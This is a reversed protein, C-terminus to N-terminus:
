YWGQLEMTLKEPPFALLKPRSLASIRESTLNYRVSEGQLLKYEEGSLTYAYNFQDALVFYKPSLLLGSDSRNNTVRVEFQYQKFLQDETPIETIGYLRISLNKDSAEPVGSWSVSYVTGTPSEVRIRKIQAASKGIRFVYLERDHYDSSDVRLKQAADYFRDDSDVVQLKLMDAIGQGNITFPSFVDLAFGNAGMPIMGWIQIAGDSTNVPFGWAANSLVSLVFILALAIRRIMKPRM